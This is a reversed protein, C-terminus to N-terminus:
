NCINKGYTNIFFVNKILDINKRMFIKGQICKDKKRANQFGNCNQGEYSHSLIASDIKHKM